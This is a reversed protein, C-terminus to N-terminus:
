EHGLTWKESYMKAGALSCGADTDAFDAYFLAAAEWTKGRVNSNHTHTIILNILELSLGKAFMKHSAYVAHQINKGLKSPRGPRPGNGGRTQAPDPEYEVLKSVDHLLGAAVIMDRDYSRGSRELATECIRMAMETVGRIHEMLCRNKEGKTNKPIEELCDWPMEAAMECWIEAVATRLRKDKIEEIEPFMKAVDTYTMQLPM